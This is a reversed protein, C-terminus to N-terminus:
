VQVSITVADGDKVKLKNRLNVPAVVELVNEPYNKIQPIIVACNLGAISAKFLLGLCYGEAPCITAAKTKNLLKRGEISAATLKLNLTGLFSTFGAKEEVQQKVWPLALYKKGNGEGTIVTGEFTLATL